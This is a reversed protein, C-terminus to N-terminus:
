DISFGSSFYSEQGMSAGPSPETPSKYRGIIFDVPSGKGPKGEGIEELRCEAKRAAESEPSIRMVEQYYPRASSPSQRDDYYFNGMRLRGEARMELARALEKEAEPVREHDPYLLLFEQYCNMAERIARQDYDPGAIRGGYVKALLLLADPALSSEAYEDVLRELAEIATAAERCRIAIHAIDMLALPAYDSYPVRDVVQRLFEIAGSRDRFGPIKGFFYHRQGRM